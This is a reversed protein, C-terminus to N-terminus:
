LNTADPQVYTISMPVGQRLFDSLASNIQREKADDEPVRLHLANLLDFRHLDFVVRIAGSYSIAAQVAGIYALAAIALPILALLTWWGSYWALLGAAAIATVM